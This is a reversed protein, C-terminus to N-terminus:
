CKRQHEDAKRMANHLWIRLGVPVQPIHHSWGMLGWKCLLCPWHTSCHWLIIFPVKCHTVARSCPGRIMPWFSKLSFPSSDLACLRCMFNAIIESCLYVFSCLYFAILLVLKHYFLLLVDFKFLGQESTNCMLCKWYCLRKLSYM